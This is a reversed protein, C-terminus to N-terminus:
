WEQFEIKLQLGDMGTHDSLEWYRKRVWELLLTVDCEDLEVTIDGIDCQLSSINLYHSM